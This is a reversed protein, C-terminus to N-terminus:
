VARRERYRPFIEQRKSWSRYEISGLCTIVSAQDDSYSVIIVFNEYKVEWVDGPCKREKNGRIAAAKLTGTVEGDSMSFRQMRRRYQDMAHKTVNVQM